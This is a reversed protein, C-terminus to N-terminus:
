TTDPIKKKGRTQNKTLSLDAKIFMRKRISCGPLVCALVNFRVGVVFGSPFSHAHGSSIVDEASVDSGKIM